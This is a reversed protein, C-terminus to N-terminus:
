EDGEGAGGGSRGSSGTTPATLPEQREVELDVRVIGQTPVELDFEIQQAVALGLPVATSSPAASWISRVSGPLQPLIEGAVSLGAGGFVGLVVLENRSHLSRLLRLAQDLSVPSPPEVAFRAADVSVGDGVLLSYRGDPLGTPVTVEVSRRTREGRHAALDLHLTVREGPRVLTKSSHAAVLRATRPEPHQTLKVDVSRLAIPEFDNNMVYAAFAFLHLAAAFPANEGDFSQRIALRGRSSPVGEATEAPSELELVAELDVGQMGGVQTTVDVSGLVATALLSPALLPLDAVRMEFEREGDGEVRVTLPIMRASRGLHGRVGAMRDLEFAGVVRGLNSIKFSSFSSSMVTIVEATAMPVSLPGLGLFPHGFALVEDDRRDTVTGTAALRLDGDMLLGAVASGAVLDDARDVSVSGAAAVTGLNSELWTRSGPGFGVTSWLVGQNAGGAPSPALRALQDDLLEPSFERRVVSAFDPAAAARARAGVARVGGTAEEASLKRMLEIPTIGAVPQQSFTWGFSVAGVLRDDIYVPSGSMGAIVGTEALNQGSLMALIFSTGPSIDRWVGLIKVEFREPEAGSFVSLGHGELGARVEALPFIEPEPPPSAHASWGSALVVLIAAALKCLGSHM